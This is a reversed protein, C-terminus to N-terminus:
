PFTQWPTPREQKKRTTGLIAQVRCWQNDFNIAATKWGDLTTPMPLMGYIKQLIPTVLGRKYFEILAQDDTIGSRASHKEFERTYIDATDTMWITGLERKSAEKLDLPEFAAKVATEFANWTGYGPAVATGVATEATTIKNQAWVQATGGNMFSLAFLIKKEDNDYITPNIKIYLKVAQWYADFKDCERHFDEPLRIKIKPTRAATAPDAM